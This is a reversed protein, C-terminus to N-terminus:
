CELRYSHKSEFLENYIDFWTSYHKDIKQGGIEVEVTNVLNTIDKDIAESEVKLQTGAPVSHNSLTIVTDSPM